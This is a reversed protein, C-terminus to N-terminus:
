DTKTNENNKDKIWFVFDNADSDFSTEVLGKNVLGNLINGIMRNNIADIFDYYASESMIYREQKTKKNIQKKILEKAILSCENYSLIIDLEKQEEDSLNISDIAISQDEDKGFSSFVLSRTTNIFLDFDKIIFWGDHEM